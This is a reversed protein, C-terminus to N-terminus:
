VIIKFKLVIYLVILLGGILLWFWFPIKYKTEKSTTTKLEKSKKYVELKKAKQIDTFEDISSIIKLSKKKKDFEISYHNNGSKKSSKFNALTTILLSDLKQTGTMVPLFVTDHIALTKLERQIVNTKNIVTDIKNNDSSIIKKKSACSTLVLLFCIIKTISM